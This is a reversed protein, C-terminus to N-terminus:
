STGLSLSINRITDKIRILIRYISYFILFGTAEAVVLFVYYTKIHNWIDAVKISVISTEIGYALYQAYLVCYVYGLQWRLYSSSYGTRLITLRCGICTRLLHLGLATESPQELELDLSVHCM